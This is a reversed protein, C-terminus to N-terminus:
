RGDLTALASDIMRTVDALLSGKSAKSKKHFRGVRELVRRLSKCLEVAKEAFRREIEARQHRAADLEARLQTIQDRLVRTECRHASRESALTARERRLLEAALSALRDRNGSIENPYQNVLELALATPIREPFDDCLRSQTAICQRLETTEDNTM